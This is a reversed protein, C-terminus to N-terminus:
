FKKSTATASHFRSCKLKPVAALLIEKFGVWLPLVDDGAPLHRALAGHGSEVDMDFQIHKELFFRFARQGAGQWQPARLIASFVRSLGGDEYTAISAARVTDDLKRSINLFQLGIVDLYGLGTLPELRLLRNIFEDHNLREGEKTLQPWPSLNDTDCEEKYLSKLMKDNSYLACAVELNERFQISFYYYSKAIKMVDANSIIEWRLGCIEDIVSSYKCGNHDQPCDKFTVVPAMPKGEDFDPNTLYSDSARRLSCRVSEILGSIEKATGQADAEIMTSHSGPVRRVEINGLYKQWIWLPNRPDFTSKELTEVFVVKGNYAPPRYRKLATLSASYVPRAAASIQDPAVPALYSLGCMMRLLYNYLGCFRDAVYRASARVSQDKVFRLTKGIERLLIDFHCLIPWITESPYSELLIVLPVPQKTLTLQHAIELAIVGGLSYGLLIYPGDPNIVTINNICHEAIDEIRSYPTEDAKLGKIVAAYVPNQITLNSVLPGLELISGSAGPIIFVPPEENGSRMM